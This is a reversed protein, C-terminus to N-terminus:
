PAKSGSRTRAWSAVGLTAASLVVSGAVWWLLAGVGSFSVDLIEEGESGVASVFGPIEVSSQNSLAVIMTVAAAGALIVISIAMAAGVHAVVRSPTM